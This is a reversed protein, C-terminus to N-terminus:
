GARRPTCQLCITRLVQMVADTREEWESGKGKVMGGMGSPGANLSEPTEDILDAKTCVVIIPVGAPNHTLTGSGLPLLTSATISSAPLAAPDTSPETYHQLHSQM